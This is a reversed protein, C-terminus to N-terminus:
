TVGASGTGFAKSVETGPWGACAALVRHTVLRESGLRWGFRAAGGSECQSCELQHPRESGAPRDADHATHLRHAIAVVTRGTLLANMSGELHRATRPDILSTAEDLV